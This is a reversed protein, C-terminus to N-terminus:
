FAKRVILKWLGYHIEPPRDIIWGIGDVVFTGGIQPRQIESPLARIVPRLESYGGAGMVESEEVLVVKAAQAAGGPPTYTAAEAFINFATLSVSTHLGIM